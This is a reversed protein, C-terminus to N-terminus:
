ECQRYVRVAAVVIAAAAAVVVFPLAGQECDQASHASHGVVWALLSRGGRALRSDTDDASAARYAADVAM